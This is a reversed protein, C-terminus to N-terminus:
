YAELVLSRNNVNVLAEAGSSYGIVTYHPVSHISVNPGFPRLDDPLISATSPSLLLKPAMKFQLFGMRQVLATTQLGWSLM